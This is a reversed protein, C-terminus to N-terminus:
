VNIGTVIKLTAPHPSDFNENNVVIGIKTLIKRIDILFDCIDQVIPPPPHAPYLTALSYLREAHTHTPPPHM